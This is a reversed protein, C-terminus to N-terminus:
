GLKAVVVLTRLHIVGKAASFSESEYTLIKTECYYGVPVNRTDVSGRQARTKANNIALM